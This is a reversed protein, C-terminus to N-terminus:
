LRTRPLRRVASASIRPRVPRRWPPNHHCRNLRRPLRVRCRRHLGRGPPRSPRPSPPCRNRPLYRPRARATRFRNLIRRCKWKGARSSFKQRQLEAAPDAAPTAPAVPPPTQIAPPIPPPPRVAGLPPV